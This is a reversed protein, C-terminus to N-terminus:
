GLASAMSAASNVSGAFSLAEAHLRRGAKGKAEMPHIIEGGDAFRITVTVEHHQNRYGSVDDTVNAIAGAVAYEDAQPKGFGSFRKHVIYGDSYFIVESLSNGMRTVKLSAVRSRREKHSSSM